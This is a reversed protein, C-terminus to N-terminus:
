GADLPRGQLFREYYYNLYVIPAVSYGNPSICLGDLIIGNNKPIRRLLLQYESGLREKLRNTITQQFTEYVM